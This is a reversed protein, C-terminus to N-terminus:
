IRLLSQFLSSQCASRWDAPQEKIYHHKCDLSAKNKFIFHTLLALRTKRSSFGDPDEDEVCDCIILADGILKHRLNSTYIDVPKNLTIPPTMEINLSLFCDPVKVRAYSM